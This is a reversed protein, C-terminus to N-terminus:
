TVGCLNDEKSPGRLVGEGCREGYHVQGGGPGVGIKSAAGEKTKVSSLM